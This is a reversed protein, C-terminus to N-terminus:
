RSLVNLIKYFDQIIASIDMRGALLAGHAIQNRVQYHKMTLKWETEYKKTDLILRVRDEFILGSLRKDDPNYLDWGQRLRWDTHDKRKKIAKRCAADIETELQGWCLVFYAQENIRQNDDIKSTKKGASQAASREKEFDADIKSYAAIIQALNKM